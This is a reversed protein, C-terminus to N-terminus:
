VIATGDECIPMSEFGACAQSMGGAYLPPGLPHPGKTSIAAYRSRPVPDLLQYHCRVILSFSMSTRIELVAM